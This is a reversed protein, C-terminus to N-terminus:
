AKSSPHADIASFSGLEDVALVLLRCTTIRFSLIVGGIFLESVTFTTRNQSDIVTVTVSVFNIATIKIAMVDYEEPPIGSVPPLVVVLEPETDNETPTWYHPTKAGPGKPIVNAVDEPDSSAFVNVNIGPVKM